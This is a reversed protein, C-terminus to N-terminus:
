KKNKFLSKLLISVGVVILGIPFINSLIERGIETELSQVIFVFLAFGLCALGPYLPWNKKEKLANELHKTHIFYISVFAIGLFVFFLYGGAEGLEFNRDVIAFLGVMFVIVGPILLGVQRKDVTKGSKNYFFFFLIGIVLLTLEGQFINLNGLLSAIGLAVLLIGLWKKDM